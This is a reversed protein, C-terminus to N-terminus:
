AATAKATKGPKTRVQEGFYRIGKGKYPDPRRLSRIKAAVEFAPAYGNISKATKELENITVSGIKPSIDKFDHRKLAVYALDLLWSNIVSAPKWVSAAKIIDIPQKFKSLM